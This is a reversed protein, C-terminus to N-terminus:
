GCGAAQTFLVQAQGDAQAVNHSHIKRQRLHGQLPESVAEAYRVLVILLAKSPRTAHWPGPWSSRPRRSPSASCRPTIRVEIEGDVVQEAGDPGLGSQRHTLLPQHRQGRHGGDARLIEGLDLHVGRQEVTLEGLFLELVDGNEEGLVETEREPGPEVSGHGLDHGLAALGGLLPKVLVPAGIHVRCDLHVGPALEIVLLYAESVWSWSTLSTGSSSSMPWIISRDPHGPADAIEAPRLHQLDGDLLPRRGARDVGPPHLLRELVLADVDDRDELAQLEVDAGRGLEHIEAVRNMIAPVALEVEIVAPRQEVDLRHALVVHTTHAVVDLVRGKIGGRQGGVTLALHTRNVPRGPGRCVTLRVAGPGTIM